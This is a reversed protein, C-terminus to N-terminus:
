APPLEDPSAACWRNLQTFDEEYADGYTQICALEVKGGRHTEGWRAFTTRASLVIVDSGIRRAM